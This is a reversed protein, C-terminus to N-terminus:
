KPQSIGGLIIQLLIPRLREAEAATVGEQMSPSTPSDRFFTAGSVTPAIAAM